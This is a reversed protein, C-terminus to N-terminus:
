GKQSEFINMCEKYIRHAKCVWRTPKGNLEWINWFFGYRQYSDNWLMDFNGSWNSTFCIYNASVYTCSCSLWKLIGGREDESLVAM